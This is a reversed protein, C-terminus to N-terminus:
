VIALVGLALVELLVAEDGTLSLGTAEVGALSLGTAEDGALSLGAPEPVLLAAEVGASSLGLAVVVELISLEDIDAIAEEALVEALADVDLAGETTGSVLPEVAGAKALVAIFFVKPALM